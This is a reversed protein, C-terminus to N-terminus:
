IQGDDAYTDELHKWIKRDRIDYITSRDMDFEKALRHGIEGKSLRIRIELVQKATLKANVTQEGIKPNDKWMKKSNESTTIFRCNSPEYNSCPDIRDICLGKKWGNQIAWTYFALPDNLWENCMTIRKGKYFPYAKHKSEIGYCREKIGKWKKYLPHVKTKSSLGHIFNPNNIGKRKAM